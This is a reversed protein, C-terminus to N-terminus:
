PSTAWAMMNGVSARLPTAGLKAGAGTRLWTRVLPKLRRPAPLLRFWYHLPYNNTFPTLKTETFGAQRLGLELSAPSFIQLHEVDVIPASSGLLRMLWHRYNHSVIMIVGGRKLLVRSAKLFGYPDGIHELTQNAIILSFQGKPLTSSDFSEVRTLKQIEVPAKRAAERSPEIGTVSEFGLSMLRRLLAGNGSGIELASSLDPLRSLHRRVADAYSDAAYQAEEDSDYGATEYAGSLFVNPPVRPAYLLDCEPCVVLRLNMHEPEKRSAYSMSNFDGSDIREAFLEHSDDSSGCLPCPRRELNGLM